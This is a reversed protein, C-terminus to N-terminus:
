VGAASSLAREQSVRLGWSTRCAGGGGEWEGAVLGDKWYPERVTRVRSCHGSSRTKCAEESNFSGGATIGDALARVAAARAFADTTGEVQSSLQLVRTSLACALDISACAFQSMLKALAAPDTIAAIDEASPPAQDLKAAKAQAAELRGREMVIRWQDEVDTLNAPKLSVVAGEGTSLQVAYRQKDPYYHRATGELGNLEPRAAISHLKVQKHLLPILSRRCSFPACATVPPIDGHVNSSEM